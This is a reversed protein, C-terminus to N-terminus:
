RCMRPPKTSNRFFTKRKTYPYNWKKKREILKTGIFDELQKIKQTVAPQSIQLIKSAKSFSKTEYVVLFTYIKDINKLM